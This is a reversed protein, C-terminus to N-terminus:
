PKICSIKVCAPNTKSYPGAPARQATQRLESMIVVNTKYFTFMHDSKVLMNVSFVIKLDRSLWSDQRHLRIKAVFAHVEQGAQWESQLTEIALTQNKLMTQMERHSNQQHRLQKRLNAVEDRGDSVPRPSSARLMLARVKGNAGFDNSILNSFM